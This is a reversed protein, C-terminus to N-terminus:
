GEDPKELHNLTRLFTSKGGGSPGVVVIVEGKTIRMTIGKLVHLNGFHKHINEAELMWERGVAGADMGDSRTMLSCCRRSRRAHATGRWRPPARRRPRM